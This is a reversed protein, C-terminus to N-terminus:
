IVLYRYPTRDDARYLRVEVRGRDARSVTFERREGPALSFRATQVVAGGARTEYRFGTTHRERSHVVVTAGSGTEGVVALETYWSGAARYGHLQVALVVGLAVAPAAALWRWRPHPRWRAPWGV